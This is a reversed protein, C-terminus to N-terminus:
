SADLVSGKPSDFSLGTFSLARIIEVPNYDNFSSVFVTNFIINLQSSDPRKRRQAVV